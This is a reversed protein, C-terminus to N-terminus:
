HSVFISEINSSPKKDKKDSTDKSYVQFFHIWGIGVKRTGKVEFDGEDSVANSPLKCLFCCFLFVDFVDVHVYYTKYSNNLTPATSTLDTNGFGCWM